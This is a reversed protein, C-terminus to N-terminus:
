EEKLEKIRGDMIMEKIEYLPYMYAQKHWVGNKDKWKVQTRLGEFVSGHDKLFRPTLTGIHEQLQEATVWRENYDRMAKRIVDLIKAELAKWNFTM